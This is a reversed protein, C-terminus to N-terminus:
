GKGHQHLVEILFGGPARFYFTWAGHFERPPQPDFGGAKLRAHIEDVRDRSDQVFGIHFAAPYAVEDAKDFNNLSLVFGTEDVMVVLADRGRDLLCRFGFYTEFFKRTAPVDPVTLNLHNLAM